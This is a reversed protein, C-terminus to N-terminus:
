DRPSPSTYLLCDDWNPPPPPTPDGQIERQGTNTITTTTIDNYGIVNGNEDVNEKKESNDSWNTDTTQNSDKM